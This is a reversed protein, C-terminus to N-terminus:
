NNGQVFLRVETETLEDMVLSDNTAETVITTNEEM